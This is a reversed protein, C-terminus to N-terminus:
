TKGFFISCKAHILFISLIAYITGILILKFNLFTQFFIILALIYAIGLLIGFFTRIFNHSKHLKFASISWDILTFMPFISIILYYEKQTFLNFPFLIFGLLIGMYIGLCRSCFFVHRGFFSCHYCKYYEHPQHHSLIYKSTLKVGEKM